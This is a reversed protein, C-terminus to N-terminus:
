HYERKTAVIEKRWFTAGGFVWDVDMSEPVNCLNTNYGSPMLQGARSGAMCFLWKFVNFRFGNTNVINFAVAAYDKEAGNVFALMKELADPELVIDDDFCAVYTSAAAIMELGQNRQKIQSPITGRAARVPLDPFETFIPSIDQGSFVFIIEGPKISSRRISELLARVEFPRDKTPIVFSVQSPSVRRM